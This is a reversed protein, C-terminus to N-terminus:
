KICLKSAVVMNENTFIDNFRELLIKKINIVSNTRLFPSLVVSKILRKPNVKYIHYNKYNPERLRQEEENIYDSLARNIQNIDLNMSNTIEEGIPIFYFRIEKESSYYKEKCFINKVLINSNNTNQYAMPSCIVLYKNYSDEIADLFNQITTRVCIGVRSTYSKWMLFNEDIDGSWCSTFLLKSSKYNQLIGELRKQNELALESKGNYSAFAFRQYKSVIGSERIDMFCLRRPVYFDGSLLSLFVDFDMYRCISCNVDIENNIILKFLNDNM